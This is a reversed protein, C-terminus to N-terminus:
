GSQPTAAYLDAKPGRATDAQLRPDMDDAANAHLLLIHPRLARPRPGTRPGPRRIIGARLTGDIRHDTGNTCSARARRPLLGRTIRLDDTRNRYAARFRQLDSAWKQADCHDRIGARPGLSETWPFCSEARRCAGMPCACYIGPSRRLARPPECGSSQFRGCPRCSAASSAPLAGLIRSRCSRCSRGVRLSVFSMPEQGTRPQCATSWSGTFAPPM